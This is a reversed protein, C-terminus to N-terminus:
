QQIVQRCHNPWVHAWASDCVHALWDSHVAALNRTSDWEIDLGIFVAEAEENNIHEQLGNCFVELQEYTLITERRWEDPLPLVKFEDCVDIGERKDDGEALEPISRTLMAYEHKPDDM